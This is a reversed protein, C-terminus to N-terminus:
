VKKEPMEVQKNDEGERDGSLNRQIKAGTIMHKIFLFNKGLTYPIKKKKAKGTSSMNSIM